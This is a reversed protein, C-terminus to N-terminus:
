GCAALDARDPVRGRVEIVVALPPADRRLIHIIVQLFDGAVVKTRLIKARPSAGDERTECKLCLLSECRPLLRFRLDFIRNARDSVDKAVSRRDATFAVDM